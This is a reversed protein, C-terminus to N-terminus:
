IPDGQWLVLYKFVGKSAGVATQPDLKGTEFVRLKSVDQRGSLQLPYQSRGLDDELFFHFPVVCALGQQVADLTHSLWSFKAARPVVRCIWRADESFTRM